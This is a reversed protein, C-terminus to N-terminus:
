PRVRIYYFAKPGTSTNTCAATTEFWPPVATPDNVLVEEVVSTSAPDQLDLMRVVEYDMGHRAKWTVIVAGPGPEASIGVICLVSTPDTPNTLVVAEDFDSAGDGDTDQLNPDSMIDAPAWPSGTVEQEDGLADNDNDWDLENVLGDGDVDLQPRMVAMGLFGGYHSLPGADCKAYGGPQGGANVAVFVGGTSVNGCVDFVECEQATEGSVKVACCLVL